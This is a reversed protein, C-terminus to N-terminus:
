YRIDSWNQEKDAIIKNIMIGNEETSSSNFVKHQYNNIWDM